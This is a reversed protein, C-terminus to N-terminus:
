RSLVPWGAASRTANACADFLRTCASPKAHSSAVPLFLPCYAGNEQRLAYGDNTPVGEWAPWAWKSLRSRGVAREAKDDIPRQTGIANSRVVTIACKSFPGERQIEM